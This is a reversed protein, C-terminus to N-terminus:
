RSAVSRAAAVPRSVQCVTTEVTEGRDNLRKWRKLEAQFYYTPLGTGTAVLKQDHFVYHQTSGDIQVTARGTAEFHDIVVVGSEFKCSYTVSTDPEANNALFLVGPVVLAALHSIM